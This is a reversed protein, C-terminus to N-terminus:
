AHTAVFRPDINAPQVHRKAEQDYKRLVANLERHLLYRFCKGYGDPMRQIRGEIKQLLAVADLAETQSEMQDDDRFPYGCDEEGNLHAFLHEYIERNLRRAFWKQRMRAFFSGVSNPKM